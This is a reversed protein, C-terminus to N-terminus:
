LAAKNRLAAIAPLDGKEIFELMAGGGTSIYSIGQDVGLQEIAALTDGGGVISYADSAAIARALTRTGEAFPAREFVGLPGNWLVTAAEKVCAAIRVCTRPGVDLIMEGKGLEGVNRVVVDDSDLSRACVVDEALLLQAGRSRLGDRLRAADELQPAEHLSAGVDYGQAALLTNAIGGGPILCDAKKCLTKLVGLKTSVKAGGVIAVAPREIADVMRSLAEIEACLLPGACAVGAAEVLGHTSAHKRHACAFADLVFVDCLRALAAALQPDDNSEGVSFRINELLVVEGPAVAGLQAHGTFRVASGLLEELRRAVPALSFEDTFCGEQPRGLHSLLIVAAGERLAFQITPLCARIRHDGVVCRDRLPVNFDVRMLVRRGALAVDGLRLLGLPDTHPQLAVANM